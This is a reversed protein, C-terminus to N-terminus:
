YRFLSHFLYIYVLHFIHALKLSFEQPPHFLFKKKFLKILDFYPQFISPGKRSEVNAKLKVMIGSFLPAMLLTFLVQSITEFLLTEEM